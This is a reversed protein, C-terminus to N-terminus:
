PMVLVPGQGSEGFDLVATFIGPLEDAFKLQVPIVQTEAAGLDVPEFLSAEAAPASIGVIAVNRQGFNTLSLDFQLIQGVAQINMADAVVSIQQHGDHARAQLSFLAVWTTVILPLFPWSAIQKANRM